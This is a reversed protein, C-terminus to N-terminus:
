LVVIRAATAKKSAKWFTASMAVLELPLPFKAERPTSDLRQIFQHFFLTM